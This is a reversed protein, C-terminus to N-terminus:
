YQVKSTSYYNWGSGAAYPQNGFLNVGGNYGIGQLGGNETIVYAGTSTSLHLGGIMSIRENQRMGNWYSVRYLGMANGQSVNWGNPDNYSYSVNQLTDYEGQQVFNYGIPQWNLESAYGWGASGQSSNYGATLVKGNELIYYMTKVSQMDGTTCLQCLDSAPVGIPTPYYCIQPFAGDNTKAQYNADTNTELNGDNIPQGTSYVEPGRIGFENYYNMGLGFLQGTNKQKIVISAYQQHNGVVWFDEANKMVDFAAGWQNAEQGLAKPYGKILDMYPRFVSQYGITNGIGGPNGPYWWASQNSTGGCTHFTGDNCLVMTIATDSMGWTYLKKIGGYQQWNYNVLGPSASNRHSGNGLKGFNGNGWTWLNGNADIAYSSGYTTGVVHIDVIPINGFFDPNIMTPVSRALTDGHGLQGYGNYGWSWVKGNADLALLHHNATDNQGPHSAVKIIRTTALIGAGTGSNRWDHTGVVFGVRAPFYNTNTTGDGNEGSPGQGYTYLEGNDFLYVNWYDSGLIQICKPFQGKFGPLRGYRYDDFPFTLQQPQNFTTGFTDHWSDGARHVSGSITAFHARGGTGIAAHGPSSWWSGRFKTWGLPAQNPLVVVTEDDNGHTGSALKSWDPNAIATNSSPFNGNKYIPNGNYVQRKCMFIDNGYRVVDGPYYNRYHMWGGRYLYGENHEAWYKNTIGSGFTMNVLQCTTANPGYTSPTLFCAQYYYATPSPTFDLQRVVNNDVYYRIYKGDIQITLKTLPTYSGPTAVPSGNEYIAITGNNFYFGYALNTYAVSATPNTTLGFMLATNTSVTQASAIVTNAYSESSYVTTDWVTATGPAKMFSGAISYNQQVLQLHSPSYTGAAIVSNAPAGNWTITATNGPLQNDGTITVKGPSYESGALNKEFMEDSKCYYSRGNFRVIDNKSYVTDVAWDGRWNFKIATYDISGSYSGSPM